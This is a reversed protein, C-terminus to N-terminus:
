PALDPLVFVVGENNFSLRGELRKDRWSGEGAKVKEIESATVSMMNRRPDVGIKQQMLSYLAQVPAKQPYPLRKIEIKESATEIQWLETHTLWLQYTDRPKDASGSVLPSMLLVGGNEPIQVGGGGTLKANLRPKVVPISLLAVEELLEAAKGQGANQLARSGFFGACLLWVLLLAVLFGAKHAKKKWWYRLM